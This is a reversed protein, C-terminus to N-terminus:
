LSKYHKVVEAVRIWTTYALSGTMEFLRVAESERLTHYERPSAKSAATEVTSAWVQPYLRSNNM